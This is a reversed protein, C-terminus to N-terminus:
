RHICATLSGPRPQVPLPSPLQPLLQTKGLLIELPVDFIIIRPRGGGPQTPYFRRLKVSAFNFQINTKKNNM